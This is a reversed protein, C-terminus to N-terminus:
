PWFSMFTTVGSANQLFIKIYTHAIFSSTISQISTDRWTGWHSPTLRHSGEYIPDTGQSSDRSNAEQRQEGGPSSVTLLGCGSVPSEGSGLRATVQVEPQWDGSPSCSKEITQFICLRNYDITALVSWSMM